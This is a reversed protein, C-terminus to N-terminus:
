SWSVVVGVQACLIHINLYLAFNRTAIMVHESAQKRHLHLLFFLKRLWLEVRNSQGALICVFFLTVVVVCWNARRGILFIDKRSIEGGRAKGPLHLHLQRGRKAKERQAEGEGENVSIEGRNRKIKRQGAETVQGRGM